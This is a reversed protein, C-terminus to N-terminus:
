NIHEVFRSMQNSTLGAYPVDTYWEPAARKIAEYLKDKVLKVRKGGGRGSSHVSTRRSPNAVIQTREHPARYGRSQLGEM